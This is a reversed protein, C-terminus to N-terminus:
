FKQSRQQQRKRRQQKDLPAITVGARTLVQDCLM